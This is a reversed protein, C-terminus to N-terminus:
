DHVEGLIVQIQRLQGPSVRLWKTEGSVLDDRTQVKIAFAEADGLDGVEGRYYSADERERLFGFQGVANGNADILKGKQQYDAVKDAAERLLDAIVAPDPQEQEDLMAGNRLNDIEFVFRTKDSM